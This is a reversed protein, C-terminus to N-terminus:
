NGSPTRVMEEYYAKGLKDPLIRFPPAGPAADIPIWKSSAYRNAADSKNFAQVWAPLDTLYYTSSVFHGSDDDFWYAANATHGAPLIAARDKLSIGIVTTDAPGAIKIEDGLTSGVLRRPSSGTGGNGGVLKTADDSVSTVMKGTERDFWENGVIGDIAPISGTLFAAHGVATVTPYHAQHADTFFAGSDHLKRLGDHFDSDFRTMYDYRFQDVIIAVVLKTQPAAPPASHAPILLFLAALGCIWRRLHSIM